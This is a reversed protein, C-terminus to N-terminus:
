PALALCLRHFRVLLILAANQALWTVYDDFGPILSRWRDRWLGSPAAHAVVRKTAYRWWRSANAHAQMAPHPPRAMLPLYRAGIAIAARHRRTNTEQVSCDTGVAHRGRGRPLSTELTLTPDPVVSAAIGAESLARLSLHDRAFIAQYRAIGAAIEPGNAQYVSNILFAPRGREQAWLPVVALRKAAKSDHHLAGEGNVLVLDFDAPALKQWDAHLPLKACIDFGTEAALLDLQRDVLTCGHHGSLFTTNILVAKM